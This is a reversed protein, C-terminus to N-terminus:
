LVRVTAFNSPVTFTKLTRGGSVVQVEKRLAPKDFQLSASKLKGGTWSMSLSMGNRVRANKLSGSGWASPLAPLLHVVLPDSLSPTNPAQVLMNMVAGVAGYNADIQFLSNAKGDYMDFLNAGYDRELSLQYEYYAGTANALQSWLVSRVMKEWGADSDSIGPGRHILTTAAAKLVEDRSPSEEDYSAIAYGPYLGMLHSIHRHTDSPSDLDRKWEQLQGWSGIRVGRDLIALKDQVEKLFAADTDGSLPFGKEINRFLEWILQQFHACGYTPGVLPNEPSDCPTAVLTGDGTAADEFLNDLWFEAVGKLLPWGQRKFWTADGTFDFHDWVHLMMWAAAAPYNAWQPDGLKMGTHGFINMENHVVFGRSGYVLQATESGRPAWTKSMYDWLSGTISGLNSDELGWYNMQININAHYDGSWPADLGTSWVGQLGPPLVGRAATIMMFRGLNFLLWELYVNGTATSYEAVLEDTTKSPDPKQGLDLEFGHFLKSYDSTHRSFLSSYSQATAKSLASLAAMHPDPGVFSYNTARTGADINYNTGGAILVTQERSSSALTANGPTGTCQVSADSGVILRALLEYTMGGPEAQGRYVITRKDLCSVSAYDPTRLTDFHYVTPGSPSQSAVTNVVCVEDPFSCFSTRSLQATGEQWSASIAGTDFDLSRQFSTVNPTASRSIFLSGPSTLSGYHPFAVVLPTMDPTQDAWVAARINERTSEPVPSTPNGGDYNNAPNYPGGSWLSELNLVLEDYDPRGSQMLGMYGNGVPLYSHYWETGWTKYWLHNGSSLPTCVHALLAKYMEQLGRPQAGIFVYGLVVCCCMIPWVATRRRCRVPGWELLTHHQRLIQSPPEANLIAKQALKEDPGGATTTATMPGRVARNPPQICRSRTYDMSM